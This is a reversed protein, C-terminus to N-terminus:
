ATRAVGDVCRPDINRREFSIADGFRRNRDDALGNVQARIHCLAHASGDGEGSEKGGNCTASGPRDTLFTCGAIEHREVDDHEISLVM